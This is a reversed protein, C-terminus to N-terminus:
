RVWFPCRTDPNMGSGRRCTFADHFAPDNSLPIVIRDRLRGEFTTTALRPHSEVSGGEPCQAQAYAVYFVRSWTLGDLKLSSLLSSSPPQEALKSAYADFVKKAPSLAGNEALHLTDELTREFVPSKEARSSPTYQRKLCSSVNKLSNLSRSSPAGSEPQPTVLLVRLLCYTLRTGFTPTQFLTWFASGSDRIDVLSIKLLLTKQTADHSCHEHATSSSHYLAADEGWDQLRKRYRLERFKQYTILGQAPLAAPTGAQVANNSEMYREFFFRVKLEKLRALAKKRTAKDLWKLTSIRSALVRRIDTTIVRLSDFNVSGKLATYRVYEAADVTLAQNLILQVCQYERSAVSLQLDNQGNTPTFLQVHRVVCFGLYNLVLNPITSRVLSVLPDLSVTAASPQQRIEDTKLAPRPFDRLAASLFPRVENMAHESTKDLTRWLSRLKLAFTGVQAALKQQWSTNRRFWLMESFVASTANSPVVPCDEGRTPTVTVAEPLIDLKLLPSLSLHRQINGSIKWVDAVTYLPYVGYPWGFLGTLNLLAELPSNGLKNTTGVDVCDKWLHRSATAISLATDSPGIEKFLTIVQKNVDSKTAMIMGSKQNRGKSCVYGYFDECPDTTEDLLAKLRQAQPSCALSLCLLSSERPSVVDEKFWPGFMWHPVNESDLDTDVAPVANTKLKFYIIISVMLGVLLCLALSGYILIERKSPMQKTLNGYFRRDGSLMLNTSKIPVPEAQWEDLYKPRWFASSLFRSAISSPRNSDSDTNSTSDQIHVLTPPQRVDEKLVLFNEITTDTAVSTPAPAATPLAATLHSTTLNSESSLSDQPFTSSMPKASLVSPSLSSTRQMVEDFDRQQAYTFSLAQGDFVPAPKFYRQFFAGRPDQRLQPRHCILRRRMRPWRSYWPPPISQYRFSQVDNFPVHQNQVQQQCRHGFSRQFRQPVKLPPMAKHSGDFRLSPLTSCSAYVQAGIPPSHAPFVSFTEAATQTRLSQAPFQEQTPVMPSRHEQFVSATPVTSVSSLARRSDTSQSARSQHPEHPRFIANRVEPEDDTEANSSLRPVDILLLTKKPSQVSSGPEVEVQHNRCRRDTSQLDRIERIIISNSHLAHHRSPPKVDLVRRLAFPRSHRACLPRSVSDGKGSSSSIADIIVKSDRPATEELVIHNVGSSNSDSAINRSDGAIHCVKTLHTDYATEQVDGELPVEVDSDRGIKGSMLSRGHPFKETADELKLRTNRGLKSQFVLPEEDPIEVEETDFLSSEDDYISSSLEGQFVMKQRDKSISVNSEYTMIQENQRKDASESDGNADSEEDLENKHRTKKSWHIPTRTLTEDEEDQDDQDYEQLENRTQFPDVPILEEKSASWILEDEIYKSKTSSEPSGPRKPFFVLSTFFRVKRPKEAEGCIDTSIEETGFGRVDKKRSAKTKSISKFAGKLTRSTKNRPAQYSNGKLKRYNESYYGKQSKKLKRSGDTDSNQRGEFQDMEESDEQCKYQKSEQVGNRRRAPKKLEESDWQESDDSFKNYKYRNRSNGKISVAAKTRPKEKLNSKSKIKAKSKKTTLRKTESRSRRRSEPTVFDKDDDTMENGVQVSFTEYENDQPRFTPSEITPDHLKADTALDGTINELLSCVTWVKELDEKQPGERSSSLNDQFDSSSSRRTKSVRRRAGGGKRRPGRDRNQSRPRRGESRYADPLTSRSRSSSGSSKFTFGRPPLPSLPGIDGPSILRRRTPVRSQVVPRADFEEILDDMVENVYIAVPKERGREDRANPPSRMKEGNTGYRLDTSRGRKPRQEYLFTLQKRPSGTRTKKQSLTQRLPRPGTDADQLDLPLPSRLRRMPTLLEQSSRKEAFLDLRQIVDRSKDANYDPNTEYVPFAVIVERGPTEGWGGITQM